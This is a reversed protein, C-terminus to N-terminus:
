LRRRQIWRMRPIQIYGWDGSPREAEVEAVQGLELLPPRSCIRRHLRSHLRIVGLGTVIITRSNSIRHHRHLYSHLPRSPPPILHDLLPHLKLDDFKPYEDIKLMEVIRAVLAVLTRTRTARDRLRYTPRSQRYPLDNGKERSPPFSQQRPSIAVKSLSSSSHHKRIQALPAYRIYNTTLSLKPTRIKVMSQVSSRSIIINRM